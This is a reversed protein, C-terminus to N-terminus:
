NLSKLALNREFCQRKIGKQSERWPKLKLRLIVLLGEKFIFLKVKSPFQIKRKERMEPIQEFNYKLSTYVPVSAIRHLLQNWQHKTVSVQIPTM